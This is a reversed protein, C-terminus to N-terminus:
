GKVAVDSRPHFLNFIMACFRYGKEVVPFLYWVHECLPNFVLFWVFLANVLRVGCLCQIWRYRIVWQFLVVGWPRIFSDTVLIVVRSGYWSIGPYVMTINNSIRNQDETPRLVRPPCSSHSLAMCPTVLVFVTPLSLIFRSSNSSSGFRDHLLPFEVPWYPLCLPRCLFDNVAKKGDAHAPGRLLSFPPDPIIRPPM